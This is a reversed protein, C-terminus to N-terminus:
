NVLGKMMENLQGYALDDSNWKCGDQTEKDELGAIKIWDRYPKAGNYAKIFLCASLYLTRDNQIWLAINWTNYNKWGEYTNPKSM